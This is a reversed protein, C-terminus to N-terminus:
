VTLRLADEHESRARCLALLLWSRVFLGAGTQTRALLVKLLTDPYYLSNDGEAHRHLRLHAGSGVMREFWPQSPRQDLACTPPRGVATISERAHEKETFEPGRAPQGHLVVSASRLMVVGHLQQLYVEEWCTRGHWLDEFARM